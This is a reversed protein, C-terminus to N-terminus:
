SIRNKQLQAGYKEALAGVKAVAQDHLPNNEDRFAKYWPNAENSLIDLYEERANAFRGGAAETGSIHTDEGTLLAHKMLAARVKASGFEADKEPDIGLIAAARKALETAKDPALNAAKAVAAFAEDQQQILGDMRVQGDAVAKKTFAIQAAMLEQALAPSVHHKHLIQASANAFEDSWYEAPLDDPRKFGFGEPKEPTGNIQALLAGREKIAEPPANPALPLLNKKSALQRTEIHSRLLTEITPYKSLEEKYPKLDDPLRDFASAQIKGDNDYLGRYFPEPATSTTAATTAATTTTAEPPM